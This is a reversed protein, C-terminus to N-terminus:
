PAIAITVLLLTATTAEVAHEVGAPLVVLDGAQLTWRDEGARLTSDGRLAQISVPGPARHESLRGGAGLAVLVVRLPGEKVLTTASRGERAVEPSALLAEGLQPLNAVPSASVTEPTAPDNTMRLEKQEIILMERGVADLAADSLLTRALPFAIEDENQFHVRLTQATARWARRLSHLAAPTRGQAESASIAEGFVARQQRFVGHDEGSLLEDLVARLGDRKLRIQDHEAILEEVLRDDAPLAAKLRPFLPGEEKRIHAELEQNLFSLMARSLRLAPGGREANSPEAGALAQDLEDFLALAAEHEAMLLTIPDIDGTM